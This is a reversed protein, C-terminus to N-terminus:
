CLGPHGPPLEMRAMVYDLEAVVIEGTRAEQGSHSSLNKEVITQGM